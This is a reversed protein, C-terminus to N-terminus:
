GGNVLVFALRGFWRYQKRLLPAIYNERFGELSKYNKRAVELWFSVILDFRPCSVNAVLKSRSACYYSAIKIMQVILRSRVLKTAVMGTLQVSPLRPAGDYFDLM